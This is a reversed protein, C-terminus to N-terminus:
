IVTEAATNRNPWPGDSGIVEAMHGFPKEIVQCAGEACGSQALAQAVTVFLSPPVALYHQPSQAQDLEARLQSRAKLQDLSWGAKAVGIIPGNLGEDDVIADSPRAPM